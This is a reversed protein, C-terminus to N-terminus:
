TMALAKSVSKNEVKLERELLQIDENAFRWGILSNLYVALLDHSSKSLESQSTLRSISVEHARTGFKGDGVQHM